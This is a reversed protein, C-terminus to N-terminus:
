VMKCVSEVPLTAIKLAPLHHLMTVAEELTNRANQKKLGYKLFINKMIDCGYM